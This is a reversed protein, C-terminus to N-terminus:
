PTPLLLSTILLSGSVEQQCCTSPKYRTFHSAYLSQVAGPEAVPILRALALHVQGLRLPCSLSAALSSLSSLLSSVYSPPALRRLPTNYVMTNPTTVKYTALAGKVFRALFVLIDSSVVSVLTNYSLLSMILTKEM